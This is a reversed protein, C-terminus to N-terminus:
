LILKLRSDGPPITSSSLPQQTEGDRGLNPSTTPLSSNELAPTTPLGMFDFWAETQCITDAYDDQKTMKKEQLIIHYSWLDNRIQCLELAKRILWQKTGYENLGRPCGLQRSKLKSDVEILLPLLPADALLISFYSLVHQSVRVAKYNSALQREMIIIHSQFYLDRYRSLFQTIDRYLTATIEVKNPDEKRGKGEKPAASEAGEKEKNKARKEARKSKATQIFSIREFALPIIRGDKYRKEIRFGLNKTSPDISVVQYYDEKWDRDTEPRTHICHSIFPGKDPQQSKPISNRFM